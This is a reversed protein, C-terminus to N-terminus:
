GIPGRALNALDYGGSEEPLRHKRWAVMGGTLNIAQWLGLHRTIATFYNPDGDESVIITKKFRDLPFDPKLTGQALNIAQPVHGDEYEESERLDIVQYVQPAKRIKSYAEEPAINQSLNQSLNQWAQSQLVLTLTLLFIIGLYFLHNKLNM